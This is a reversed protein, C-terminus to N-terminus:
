TLGEQRQTHRRRQRNGKRETKEETGAGVSSHILVKIVCDTKLKLQADRFEGGTERENRRM